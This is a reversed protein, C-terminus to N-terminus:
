NNKLMGYKQEQPIYFFHFALKSTKTVKPEYTNRDAKAPLKELTSEYLLIDKEPGYKGTTYEFTYAETKDTGLGDFTKWEFIKRPTHNTVTFVDKFNANRIRYDILIDQYADSSVSSLNIKLPVLASSPIAIPPSILKLGGDYYFIYNYNGMFAMEAAKAPNESSTAEDMAFQKRNVTIIADEKGDGDLNGKIIELQYKETALISLSSEVHRKAYENLPLKSFDEQPKEDFVEVDNSEDQCSPLFLAITFLILIAKMECLYLELLDFITNKLINKFLQYVSLYFHKSLSLKLYNEVKAVKSHNKAYLTEVFLLVIVVEKCDKLVFDILWALNFNDWCRSSPVFLEM